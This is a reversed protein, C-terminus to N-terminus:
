LCVELASASSFNADVGAAATGAALYPGLPSWAIAASLPAEKLAAM